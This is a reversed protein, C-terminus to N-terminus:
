HTVAVLTILDHCTSSLVHGCPRCQVLQFDVHMDILIVCFTPFDFNRRTAERGEPPRSAVLRFKSKGVKQTIFRNEEDLYSVVVNTPHAPISGVKQTIRM